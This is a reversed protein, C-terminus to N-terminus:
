SRAHGRLTTAGSSDLPGAVCRSESGSSAVSYRSGAGRSGSGSRIEDPDLVCRSSCCDRGGEGFGQSEVASISEGGPLLDCIAAVRRFNAAYAHQIASVYEGVPWAHLSDRLPPFHAPYRVSPDGGKALRARFSFIIAAGMLFLFTPFVMDTPTWGNWQAHKLPWYSYQNGNNVLIMFAITFGRLVDVSIVRASSVVVPAEVTEIARM